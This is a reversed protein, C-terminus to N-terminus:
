RTPLEGGIVRKLRTGAPIVQGDQLQNMIALTAVDVTSPYRRAFEEITMDSPLTVLAIRKPQVELLRRDRVRRFSSVADSLVESNARWVDQGTYALVQFVKGGHQVFGAVGNLNGGQNRQAEFLHAVAPLGDMGASFSQGQVIGQQSFFTRAADQPSGAAALTLAVIADEKPSVAAVQQKQNQTKWGAPFQIEFGLEPQIFRNGLFYGERPNEGFAMGEVAALFPERGVTGRSLDINLARIKQDIAAIRSEESPHTALWGPVRGGGQQQSVRQLTAFVPPMERPDYGHRVLYRLGLDDAQREDDRGYKLFALGLGTQALDAYKGFEPSAIAVGLLGIQALQQRSMQEVSHRATVHGIEHGIVAALEAESTLHGLLGRTVYIFGGPIAFANVVPDDVVRFTWPLQPRESDAALKKGLAAVYAQLEPDDVLGLSAVVDGDAERGMEIEQPESIMALQSKGTAPNTSCGSASLALVLFMGLAWALAKSRDFKARAARLSMTETLTAPSM